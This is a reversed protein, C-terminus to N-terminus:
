NLKYKHMYEHPYTKNENSRVSIMYIKRSFDVGFEKLRVKAQQTESDPLYIKPKYVKEELDIDIM